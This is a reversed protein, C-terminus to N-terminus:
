FLVVFYRLKRRGPASLGAMQSLSFRRHRLIAVLHLRIIVIRRFVSGVEILEPDFIRCYSRRVLGQQWKRLAASGAAFTGVVLITM